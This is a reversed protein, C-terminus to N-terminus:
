DGGEEFSCIIKKNLICSNYSYNIPSSANKKVLIRHSGDTLVCSNIIHSHFSPTKEKLIYEYNNSNSIGSFMLEKKLNFCIDNGDGLDQGSYLTSLFFQDIQKYQPDPYNPVSGSFKNTDLLLIYKNIVFISSFLLIGIASYFFTM